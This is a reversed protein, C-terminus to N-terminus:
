LPMVERRQLFRMVMGNSAELVVTLQLDAVLWVSGV